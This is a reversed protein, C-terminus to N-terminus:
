SLLTMEWNNGYEPISKMLTISESLIASFSTLSHTSYNVILLSKM